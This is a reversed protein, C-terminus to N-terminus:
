IWSVQAFMLLIVLLALLFAGLRQVVYFVGSVFVSFEVQTSKLFSIVSMWMVLKTLATGSRFAEKSLMPEGMLMVGGFYFILFILLADLWNGMDWMWSGFNGLALLSIIQVLERLLFYAGCILTIIIMGKEAVDEPDSDDMTFLHDITQITTIEFLIIVLILFFFDLILVM